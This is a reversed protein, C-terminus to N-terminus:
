RTGAPLNPPANQEKNSTRLSRPHFDAALWRFGGGSPVRRLRGPFDDEVLEKDPQVIRQHKLRRAFERPFAVIGEPFGSALPRNAHRPVIRPFVKTGRERTEPAFPPRQRAAAGRAPTAVASSEQRPRRVLRRVRSSPGADPSIAGAQRVRPTFSKLQRIAAPLFAAFRCRVARKCWGTGVAAVIAAAPLDPRICAPRCTRHRDGAGHEPRPNRAAAAGPPLQYYPQSGVPVGGPAGAPVVYEPRQVPPNVRWGPAAVSSISQTGRRLSEARALLEEQPVVRQPELQFDLTRTDHLTGPIANESIFDLPPIEYWPPLVPQIVTKTECGDKVLRIKRNGYYITSISVPTIGVDHDDVYVQAGPPNSRIVVRREVCGAVLFCLAAALLAFPHARSTTGSRSM